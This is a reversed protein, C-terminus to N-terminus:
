HIILTKGGELRYQLGNNSLITLLENLTINRDMKGFFKMGRPSGEYSVNIDYWRELQRMVEVLSQGEFNFTGNKWAMVNDIDAVAVVRLLGDARDGTRPIRAQQGPKLRVANGHDHTEGATVRVSGELLTADISEENTYAKVNFHTGLVEVTARNSVEVRFPMKENKAVEFYAEGTLIVVREKGAFATPYRLSSAANLWVGTGDPLTVHFQRGKPTTMTNFETENSGPGTQDYALSGAKLVANAGQQSAVRGDGLSDLVLQSGDALTLIAGNKGPMVTVPRVDAVTPEQPSFSIAWWYSSAALVFLVSAAALWRVLPRLHPTEREPPPESAFGGGELIRDIVRGLVIDESQQHSRSVLESFLAGVELEDAFHQHVVSAALWVNLEAAEQDSLGEQSRKLLLAAIRTSDLNM